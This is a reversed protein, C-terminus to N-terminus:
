RPDREGDGRDIAARGRVSVIILAAALLLVAVGVVVAPVLDTVSDFRIPTAYSPIAGMIPHM